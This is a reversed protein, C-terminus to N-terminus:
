RDLSLPDGANGMADISTPTPTFNEYYKASPIPFRLGHSTDSLEAQIEDKLECGLQLNKNKASGIASTASRGSWKM